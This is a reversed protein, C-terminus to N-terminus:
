ELETLIDDLGMNLDRFTNQFRCPIWKYMHVQTHPYFM